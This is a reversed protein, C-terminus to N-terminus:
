DNLGEWIRLPIQRTDFLSAIMIKQEEIYYIIKWHSYVVYRYEITENLIFEVPGSRPFTKLINPADIIGDVIKHVYAPAEIRLYADIFDLQDSAKDSWVIQYSM